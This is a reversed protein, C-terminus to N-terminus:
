EGGGTTEPHLARRLDDILICSRRDIEKLASVLRFRHFDNFFLHNLLFHRFLEQTDILLRLRGLLHLATRQAVQVRRLWGCELWECLPIPERDCRAPEIEVPKAPVRGAGGPPPQISNPDWGSDREEPTRTEERKPWM